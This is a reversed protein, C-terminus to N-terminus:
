DLISQGKPGRRGDAKASFGIIDWLTGYHGILRWVQSLPGDVVEDWIRRSERSYLLLRNGGGGAGAEGGKEKDIAM